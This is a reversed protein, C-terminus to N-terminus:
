RLTEILRKLETWRGYAIAEQQLYCAHLAQERAKAGKISAVQTKHWEADASAKWREYQQGLQAYGTQDTFNWRKKIRDAITSLEERYTMKSFRTNVKKKTVGYRREIVATSLDTMDEYRVQQPWSSYPCTQDTCYDGRLSSGCRQCTSKAESMM